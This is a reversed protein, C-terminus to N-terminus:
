EGQSLFCAYQQGLELLQVITSHAYAVLDVNGSPPYICTAFPDGFLSSRENRASLSFLLAGFQPDASYYIMAPGGSGVLQAAASSTLKATSALFSDLSVNVTKAIDLYINSTTETKGFSLSSPTWDVSIM